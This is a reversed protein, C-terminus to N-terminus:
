EKRQESVEHLWRWVSRGGGVQFGLFCFFAVNKGSIPDRIGL